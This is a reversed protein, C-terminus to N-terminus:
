HSLRPIRKTVISMVEGPNPAPMLFSWESVQAFQLRYLWRITYNVGYHSGFVMVRVVEYGDSPVPLNSTGPIVKPLTDGEGPVLSRTQAYVLQPLSILVTGWGTDFNTM